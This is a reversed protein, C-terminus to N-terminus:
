PPATLPPLARVRIGDAEVIVFRGEALVRVEDWRAIWKALLDTPSDTALRVLVVGTARMRRRFVLEGFDKDLTLVVRRELTSTRLVESDAAGPSQERVWTVDHGDDRLWRVLLAPVNEDAAIRM